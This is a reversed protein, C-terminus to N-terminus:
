LHIRLKNETGNFRGSPVLVAGLVFESTEISYLCPNISLPNNLTPIVPDQYSNSELEPPSVKVLSHGDNKVLSKWMMMFRNLRKSKFNGSQKQTPHAM